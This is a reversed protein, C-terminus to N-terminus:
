FQRRDLKTAWDAQCAVVPLPFTQDNNCMSWYRLQIAGNIAPKFVSFGDYTDPFV